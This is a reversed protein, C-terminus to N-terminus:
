RPPIYVTLKRCDCGISGNSRQNRIQELENRVHHVYVQDYKDNFCESSSSVSSSRTRRKTSSSSSSHSEYAINFSGSDFEDTESVSISSSRQRGNTPSTPALFLARREDEHLLKFLPNKIGSKYDWQRTEFTLEDPKSGPRKKM